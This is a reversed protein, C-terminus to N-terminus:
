PSKRITFILRDLICLQMKVKSGTTILLKLSSLWTISKESIMIGIVFVEAPLLNSGRAINAALSSSLAVIGCHM